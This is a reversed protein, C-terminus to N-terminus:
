THGPRRLRTALCKILIKLPTIHLRTGVTFIIPWEGHDKPTALGPNHGGADEDTKIRSM